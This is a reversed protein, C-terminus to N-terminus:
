GAPRCGCQCGSNLVPWYNPDTGDDLLGAGVSCQCGSDHVPWYYPDIGDDLLGVVVIVAPNWSLGAPRNQAM